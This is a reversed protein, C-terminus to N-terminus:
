LCFVPKYCVFSCLCTNMTGIIKGQEINEDGFKWYAWLSQLNLCRNECMKLFKLLILPLQCLYVHLKLYLYVYASTSASMITSNFLM